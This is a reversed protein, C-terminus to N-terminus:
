RFTVPLNAGAKEIRIFVGPFNQEKNRCNVRKEWSSWGWTTFYGGGRQEVFVGIHQKKM